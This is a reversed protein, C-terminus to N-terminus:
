TLSKKTSGISQFNTIASYKEISERLTLVWFVTEGIDALSEPRGGQQRWIIRTAGCSLSIQIIRGDCPKERSTIELDTFVTSLGPDGCFQFNTYDSSLFISQSLLFRRTSVIRARWLGVPNERTIEGNQLPPYNGLRNRSGKCIWLAHKEIVKRIKRSIQLCSAESDSHFNQSDSGIWSEGAREVTRILRDDSFSQRWLVFPFLESLRHDFSWKWRPQHLKVFNCM